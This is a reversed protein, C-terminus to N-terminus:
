QNGENIIFTPAEPCRPFTELRGTWVHGCLYRFAAYLAKHDLGPSGAAEWEAQTESLM